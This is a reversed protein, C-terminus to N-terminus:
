YSSVGKSKEDAPSNIIHISSSPFRSLERSFYSLSRSISSRRVIVGYDFIISVNVFALFSAVKPFRIDSKPYRPIHKSSAISTSPHVSAKSVRPLNRRVAYVVIPNRHGCEEQDERRDGIRRNQLRFPARRLRSFRDSKLSFSFFPSFRLSFSSISLFLFCISTKLQLLHNKLRAYTLTYTYIIIM